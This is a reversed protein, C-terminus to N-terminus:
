KQCCGIEEQGPTRLKWLCAESKRRPVRPAEWGQGARAGRGTEKQNLTSTRCSRRQGSYSDASWKELIQFEAQGVLSRSTKREQHVSIRQLWLVWRKIRPLSRAPGLLVLLLHFTYSSTFCSTIYDRGEGCRGETLHIGDGRQLHQSKSLVKWLSLKHM